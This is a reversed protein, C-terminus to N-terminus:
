YPGPNRKGTLDYTTRAKVWSLDPSKPAPINHRVNKAFHLNVWRHSEVHADAFSIVGLGKHLNSPAHFWQEEGMLVRFHPMCLTDPYVDMTLFTASPNVFDTSKRFVAWGTEDLNQASKVPAIYSNMSYSRAHPTKKPGEVAKDEPCKYIAKSQVYKAFLSVRPDILATDNTLASLNGHDAGYVWLIDAPTAGGNVGNQVLAQSFVDQYLATTIAIQRQNNRCTIMRAKSKAAALAPLLLSALIAIIAIVVLLEILTFAGRASRRTM